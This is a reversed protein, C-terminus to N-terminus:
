PSLILSFVLPCCFFFFIFSSFPNKYEFGHSGREHVTDAMAVVDPELGPMHLILIAQFSRLGGNRLPVTVWPGHTERLSVEAVM